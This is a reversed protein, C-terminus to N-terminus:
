KIRVANLKGVQVITGSKLQVKIAWDHQRQGNVRVGGQGILRRAASNSSALNLKTLVDVLGLEQAVLEVTRIKERPTQKSKTNRAFARQAARAREIGWFGEVIKAALEGKLEPWSIKQQQLANKQQQIQELSLNTLLEFYSFVADDQLAMLKAFMEAPKDNLWVCNGSSKSMPLGDLGNIMPVTLVFKQKNKMKQLLERGVLM